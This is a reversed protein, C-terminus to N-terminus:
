ESQTARAFRTPLPPPGGPWRGQVKTVLADQNKHSHHPRLLHFSDCELRETVSKTQATTRLMAPRHLGSECRSRARFEDAEDRVSRTGRETPPEAQGKKGGRRSSRDALRLHQGGRLGRRCRATGATTQLFGRTHRPPRSAPARSPREPTPEPQVRGTAVRM